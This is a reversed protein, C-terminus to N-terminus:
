LIIILILYAIGSGCSTAIIDLWEFKGKNLILDLFIDKYLGAFVGLYFGMLPSFIVGGIFSILAGYKFHEIKDKQIM